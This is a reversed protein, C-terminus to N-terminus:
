LGPTGPYQSGQGPDLGTDDRVVGFTKRHGGFVLLHLLRGETGKGCSGDNHGLARGTAQYM